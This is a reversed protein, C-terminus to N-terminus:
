HIELNKTQNWEDIKAQNLFFGHVEENSSKLFNHIHIFEYSFNLYKKQKFIQPNFPPFYDKNINWFFLDGGRAIMMIIDTFIDMHSAVKRNFCFFTNKYEQELLQLKINFLYIKCNRTLFFIKDESESEPSGKYFMIDVINYDKKNKFCSTGWLM